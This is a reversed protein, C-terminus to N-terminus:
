MDAGVTEKGDISQENIELAVVQGSPPVPAPKIGRGKLKKYMALLQPKNKPMAGDADYKIARLLAELDPNKLQEDTLNKAVVKKYANLNKNYKALKREYVAQEENQKKIVNNKVHQYVDEGLAVNGSTFLKGATIKVM